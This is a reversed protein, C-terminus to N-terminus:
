EDRTSHTTDSPTTPKSRKVVDLLLPLTSAAGLAFLIWGLKRRKPKALRDSLLFATGAGLMGRTAAILGLEPIPLTTTKM